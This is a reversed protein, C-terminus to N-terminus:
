VLPSHFSALSPFALLCSSRGGSWPWTLQERLGAAQAPVWLGRGRWCRPWEPRPPQYLGRPLLRLCSPRCWIRFTCFWTSSVPYWFARADTHVNHAIFWLFQIHRGLATPFPLSTGFHKTFLPLLYTSLISGTIVSNLCSLHWSLTKQLLADSPLSDSAIRFVQTQDRPQSSARSSPMAVWELIRAQLIGHVSFGPPSCDM